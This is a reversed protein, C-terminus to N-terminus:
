EKILDGNAGHLALKGEDFSYPISGEVNNKQDTTVTHIAEAGISYTGVTSNALKEGNVYTDVVYKGDFFTWKSMVKDSDSSIWTGTLQEDVQEVLPKQATNGCAVLAFSFILLAAALIRRKMKVKM